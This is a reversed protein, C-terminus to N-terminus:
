RKEVIFGTPLKWSSNDYYFTVSTMEYHGDYYMASSSGGDINAANVAGYEEMIDILDQATAGLHGNKGRGDTVLLLVTGDAKQGIVTRPNAGSGKGKIDRTKGNIILKVFHNNADSSEEQFAVADRIKEEEILKKVADASKGEIDIIRLLNDDNFGILYLGALGAPSNFQIKHDKVVVGMPRGGKNLTSVYLGGNIGAFADEKKVLQDLTVGYEKWSGDYITSVKVRSPDKVMIMKGAFTSGSVKVLEIDKKDEEKTDIKILNDDIDEDFSQMSNSAVIEKVKEDSVLMSVVFKMQGTELFTTVFLDRAAKSPGYCIILGSTYITIVAFVLFVGIFSLVKLFGKVIKM